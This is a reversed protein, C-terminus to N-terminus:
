VLYISEYTDRIVEELNERCHRIAKPLYEMIDGAIVGSLTFPCTGGATGAVLTVVAFTGEASVVQGPTIIAGAVGDIHGTENDIDGSSFYTAAGGQTLLDGEAVSEVTVLTPDFALDFQVGAIEEGPEVVVNVIFQEGAEVQGPTDVNVVTAGAAVVLGPLALVLFLAVLVIFHGTINRRNSLIM